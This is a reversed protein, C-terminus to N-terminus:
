CTSAAHQQADRVTNHCSLEIWLPLDCLSMYFDDHLFVFHNVQQNQGSWLEVLLPMLHSYLFLYIHWVHQVQWMCYGWSGRGLPSHSFDELQWSLDATWIIWGADRNRRVTHIQRQTWRQTDRIKCQYTANNCNWAHATLCLSICTDEGAERLANLRQWHQQAKSPKVKWIFPSRCKTLM